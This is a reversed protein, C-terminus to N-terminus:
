ATSAGLGFNITFSPLQLNNEKQKLAVSKESRLRQSVTVAFKGLNCLSFFEDFTSFLRGLRCMEHWAVTISSFLTFLNLPTYVRSFECALLLNYHRINMRKNLTYM